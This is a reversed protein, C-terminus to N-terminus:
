TQQDEMKALFLFAQKGACIMDGDVLWRKSCNADNVRTGNHSGLDQLLCGAPTQTIEFHQRSLAADDVPWDATAGRGVVLKKGVARPTARAVSTILVLSAEFVQRDLSLLIENVIRLRRGIRDVPEASTGVTKEGDAIGNEMHDSKM